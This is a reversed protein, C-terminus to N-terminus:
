GTPGDDVITAPGIEIDVKDKGGTQAAFARGAIFGIATLVALIGTIVRVWTPWRFYLAAMFLGGWLALVGLQLGMTVPAPLNSNM